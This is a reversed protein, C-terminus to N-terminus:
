SRALNQGFATARRKLDDNNKWEKPDWPAFPELLTKYPMEVFSAIAGFMMEIPKLCNEYDGGATAILALTKGHLNHFVKGLNRDFKALCYMRDLFLKMQANPGFFYVPTAFVLVEYKTITNLIAAADDQIVCEFEPKEQCGMCAICGNV